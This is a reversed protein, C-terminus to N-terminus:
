LVFAVADVTAINDDGGGNERPYVGAPIWNRQALNQIEPDRTL